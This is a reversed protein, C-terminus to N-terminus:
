QNRRDGVDAGTETGAERAKDVTFGAELGCITM